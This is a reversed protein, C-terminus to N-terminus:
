LAGIVKSLPSVVSLGLALVVLSLTVLVTPLFLAFLSKSNEEIIFGLIKSHAQLQSPLNGTEEGIEVFAKLTPTFLEEGQFATSFDTGGGVLESMRRCAERANPDSITDSTLALAQDPPTGGDLIFALTSALQQEVIPQAIKRSIPIKWILSWFARNILGGSLSKRLSGRYIVFLLAGGILVWKNTLTSSVRFLITWLLPTEVGLSNMFLTIPQQFFAPLFLVVVVILTVLALPYTLASRLALRIQVQGREYDALKRFVRDLSGTAEGIKIMALHLRKFEPATSCASSLTEGKLVSKSIGAAITMLRRKQGGESLNAFGEIFPVGAATM